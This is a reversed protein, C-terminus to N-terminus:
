RAVASGSTHARTAFCLPTKPARRSIRTHLADRAPAVSYRLVRGPSTTHPPIPPPGPSTNLSFRAVIRHTAM